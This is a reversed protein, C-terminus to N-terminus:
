KRLTSMLWIGNALYSGTEGSPLIDYTWGAFYPVREALVVRSGDVIDRNQMQGVLRGDTTPHGPSALIQRGDALGLLVIRTDRAVARRTITVVPASVRNGEGDLTWVM